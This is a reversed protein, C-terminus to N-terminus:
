DVYQFGRYGDYEAKFNNKSFLYNEIMEDEDEERCTVDKSKRATIGTLKEVDDKEFEKLKPNNLTVLHLLDTIKDIDLYYNYELINTEKNRFRCTTIIPIDGCINRIMNIYVKKLEYKTTYQYKDSKRRSFNDLYLKKFDESIQTTMDINKFEMLLPKYYENGEKDTELVREIDEYDIGFRSIKYHEEFLKLLNLKNYICTITKIQYTQTNKLEFKKRIYEDTRFLLILDFYNKLAYENSLFIKYKEADEREKINLLKCRTDMTSYTTKLKERNGADAKVEEETEYEKFKIDLFDDFQAEKIEEYVEKMESKKSLSLKKTEGESKLNFGNNKLIDQFHELFGTWFISMQFEEYCYLKFFTNAIIQSEDRETTTRSLKLIKDNCKILNQQAEELEELTDYKMPRAQPDESYYILQSMNRTRSAMQYFSIPSILPNKTMYIFQTQASDELVFSVGTTISPSYFVYKNKFDTSANTPRFDTESTVLRFDNKKDGFEELLNKYITTIKICTDCGFLFYKNNTIHERLKNIFKEEDNYRIADIDTFKKHTNKILIKKDDPVTRNSSIFNLTNQNITADSLIIKRCNKILNILMEYVQILVKDLTNNHTLTHILDNVEDIYLIKDKVNFDTVFKLKHLSNACIVGDCLNFEQLNTQYDRLDINSEEKFTTIQERSLSILNVVSLITCGSNKKLKKALKAINRTKGTATGSSVLIIDNNRFDKISMDLKSQSIEKTTINLTENPLVTYIM